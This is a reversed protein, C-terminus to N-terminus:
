WYTNHVNIICVNYKLKMFVKYINKKVNLYM